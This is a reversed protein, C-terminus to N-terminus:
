QRNRKFGVLWDGTFLETYINYDEILIKDLESGTFGLEGMTLNIKTWDIGEMKGTTRLGPIKQIRDYFMNLNDYWEKMLIEGHQELIKATIVMSTMLIYSPSTSQICQLKDELVYPDM